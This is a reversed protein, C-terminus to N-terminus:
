RLRPVIPDHGVIGFANLLLAISVLVVVFWILNDIQAPHGPALAYVAYVAVWGILVVVVIGVFLEIVGM